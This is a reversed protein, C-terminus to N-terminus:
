GNERSRGWGATWRGWSARAPSTALHHGLVGRPSRPSRPRTPSALQRITFKAPTSFDAHAGVRGTLIYRPDSPPLSTRLPGAGDAQIYIEVSSWGRGAPAWRAARRRGGGEGHGGSDPGGAGPVGGVPSNQIHRFILHTSFDADTGVRGGVPGSGPVEGGGMPAPQGAEGRGVAAAAPPRRGRAGAAPV